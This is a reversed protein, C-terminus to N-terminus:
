RARATKFPHEAFAIYIYDGGSPNLASHSARLKFGNSLIDFGTISISGGEADSNNGFLNQYSVNYTDRETDFMRWDGGSSDTRRLIVFRPRFGTYVFPGNVNGNGTYSGFASFGEVPAFCYAIGQSDSNWWTGATFVSSTAETGNFRNSSDSAAAGTSELQLINTGIASHQVPWISSSNSIKTIILGPKANLGHGVTGNRGTWSVISIGASANTRVSSTIDGDTNSETTTGADWGWAVYTSSGDNVVGSTGLSFGDSLFANLYQAETGESQTDNPVLNETAGRVTDMLSHNGTSSRKKIWVMDPSFGLGTIDRQTDNGSYLTTDFARSGDAITPDPLNATCLSVYGTPPTYGFPRQGFNFKTDGNYAGSGSRCNATWAGTLGTAAANGSNMASGNKYFYLNGGDMDLAVGIVDGSVFGDFSSTSGNHYLLGSGNNGYLAYQQDNEGPYSASYPSTSSEIGSMTYDTGATFEWYFKGSSVYLTGTSRGSTGNSELNGNKLTQTQNKLLNLTCYNGGNNGSDATYNTPSDILSDTSSTDTAVTAASMTITVNGGDSTKTGSSAIDDLKDFFALTGGSGAPQNMDALAPIGTTPPTGGNTIRLYAIRFAGGDLRNTVESGTSVSGGSANTGFLTGDIYLSTSSGTTTLRVFHWNGDNLSTSSFTTWGGNYNGFLLNGSSNIGLNWTDATSTEHAFYTYTAANTVKTFFEYTVTTAYTIPFSITQSTSLISCATGIGFAGSAEINNVTWTNDNGSSDTGLAANSSNDSFDLHFGNVGVSGDVLVTGDVELAYVGYGGGAGDKFTLSTLTNSGPVSLSLWTSGVSTATTYSGGNVSVQFDNANAFIRLSSSCPISLGTLMTYVTGDATLSPSTSTDGDFMLEPNSMGSSTSSYVTGTTVNYEGTFEKPQWVGNSDEEGFDTPALAQGDIFHVDALYGDFSDTNSHGIQHAISSTNVYTEYNQSPYSTTDLATQLEGNVYLKVRDTSTSQTTDIALVIHYWAAPDRFLKTTVINYAYGSGTYDYSQLNDSSTFMFATHAGGVMFGSGAGFIFANVTLESRKVWGSWTWTKRNGASSPTRNLYPSDPSNFRVSRDIQYDDGAANAAGIIAPIVGDLAAM